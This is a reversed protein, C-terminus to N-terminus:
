YKDFASKYWIEIQYDNNQIAQLFSDKTPLRSFRVVAIDWTCYEPSLEQSKKSLLFTKLVRAIIALLWRYKHMSNWSGPFLTLASLLKAM